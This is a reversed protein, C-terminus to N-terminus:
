GQEQRCRVTAATRVYHECEGRIAAHDGGVVAADLQADADQRAAQGAGDPWLLGFVAVTDGLTRDLQDDGDFKVLDNALWRARLWNVVVQGFREVLRVDTVPRNRDIWALGKDVELALLTAKECAETEAKTRPGALANWAANETPADRVAAVTEARTVAVDMPTAPPAAVAVRRALGRAVPM